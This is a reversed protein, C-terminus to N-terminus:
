GGARRRRGGSGLARCPRCPRRRRDSRLHRNGRDTYIHGAVMPIGWQTGDDPHSRACRATETDAIFLDGEADVRRRRSRGARPRPWSGTARDGASGDGAVVTLKGRTMDIGFHEGGAAPLEFVENGHRGGHLRRRCSDVAVSTASRWLGGATSGGIRRYRM